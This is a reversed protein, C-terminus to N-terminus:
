RAEDEKCFCLLKKQNVIIRQGSHEDMLLQDFALWTPFKGSGLIQVLPAVFLGPISRVPMTSNTADNFIGVMFLLSKRMEPPLLSVKSEILDQQVFQDIDELRPCFLVVLYAETVHEIVTEKFEGAKLKRLCEM